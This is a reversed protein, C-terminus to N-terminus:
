LLYVLSRNHLILQTFTIYRLLVTNMTQKKLFWGVLWSFETPACMILLAHKSHTECMVEHINSAIIGVGFFPAKLCMLLCIVFNILVPSAWAIWSVNYWKQHINGTPHHTCPFPFCLAECLEPPAPFIGALQVSERFMHKNKFMWIEKFTSEFTNILELVFVKILIFYSNIQLDRNWLKRPWIVDM